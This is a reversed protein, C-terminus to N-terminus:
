EDRLARAHKSVLKRLKDPDPDETELGVIEIAALQLAIEADSLRTLESCEPDGKLAERLDVAQKMLASVKANMLKIRDGFEDEVM